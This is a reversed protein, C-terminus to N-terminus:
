AQKLGKAWARGEIQVARGGNGTTWPFKECGLKHRGRWSAKGSEAGLGTQGVESDPSGKKASESEPVPDM